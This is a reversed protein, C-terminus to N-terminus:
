EAHRIGGGGGGENFITAALRLESVLSSESSSGAQDRSLARVLGLSYAPSSSGSYTALAYFWLCPMVIQPVPTQGLRGNHIPNLEGNGDSLTLPHPSQLRSPCRAMSQTYDSLISFIFAHTSRRVFQNGQESGVRKRSKFDSFTSISQIFDLIQTANESFEVCVIKSSAATSDCVCVCSQYESGHMCGDTVNVGTLLLVHDDTTRAKPSSGIERVYVMNGCLFGHADEQSCNM